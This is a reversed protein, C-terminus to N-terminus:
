LKFSALLMPPSHVTSYSRMLEVVEARPRKGKQRKPRKPRKDKAKQRARPRKGKQGRQGKTKQRKGQGPRKGKAEVGNVHKVAHMGENHIAVTRM